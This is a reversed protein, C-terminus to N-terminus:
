CTYCIYPRLLRTRDGLVGYRIRRKRINLLSPLPHGRLFLGIQPHCQPVAHLVIPMFQGYLLALGTHAGGSHWSGEVSDHFFGGSAPEDDVGARVFIRKDPLFLM